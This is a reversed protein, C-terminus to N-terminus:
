VNENGRETEKQQAVNIWHQVLWTLGGLVWMICIHSSAFFSLLQCIDAGNYMSDMIEWKRNGITEITHRSDNRAAALFIAIGSSM